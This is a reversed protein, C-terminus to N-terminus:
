TLMYHNNLKKLDLRVPVVYLDLRVPRRSGRVYDGQARLALEDDSQCAEIGM